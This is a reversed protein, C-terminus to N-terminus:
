DIKGVVVISINLCSSDISDIEYSNLKLNFDIEQEVHAQNITNVIEKACALICFTSVSDLKEFHKINIFFKSGLELNGSNIAIKKLITDAQKIKFKMRNYVQVMNPEFKSKINCVNEPTFKENYKHFFDLPNNM